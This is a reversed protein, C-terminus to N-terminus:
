QKQELEDVQELFGILETGPIKEISAYGKEKLLKDIIKQRSALRKAEKPDSVYLPGDKGWAQFDSM